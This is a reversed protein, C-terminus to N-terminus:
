RRRAPRSIKVRHARPKMTSASCSRRRLLQEAPNYDFEDPVEFLVYINEDDTAVKLTADVPPLEGMELELDAWQQPDLKDIDIQKLPVTVGEISEWDSDDGDVTIAATEAEFTIGPTAAAATPEKTPSAAPSSTRAATEAPTSTAEEDDDGGCAAALLLASIVAALLIFASKRM